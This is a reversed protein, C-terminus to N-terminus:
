RNFLDVGASEYFAAAGPHLPVAGTRAVEKAEIPYRLPSHEVPIHRYQAEFAAADEVVVQALLYAAEEPLDARTVVIWQSWDFVPGHGEVGEYEGPVVDVREYGFAAHLDDLV